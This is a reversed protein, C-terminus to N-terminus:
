SNSACCELLGLVGERVDQFYAGFGTEIRMRHSVKMWVGSILFSPYQVILGCRPFASILPHSSSADRSKRPGSIVREGILGHITENYAPAMLLGCWIKTFVSAQLGNERISLRIRFILGLAWQPVLM